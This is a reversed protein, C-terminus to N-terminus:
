AREATEKREKRIPRMLGLGMFRGAGIMLPGRVPTDFEIAAHVLQRRIAAGSKSKQHFAPYISAPQTGAMLQGLTVEVSTPRPLCVHACASVVSTEAKEWARAVSKYSAHGRLRDPHKPLAIPTASVWRRSPRHWISPRLSIVGSAAQRRVLHLVGHRGLKLKLQGNEQHEWNGIARLLIRKDNDDVIEPISIAVGLLRGDSRQFGTYPIPLFALHPTLSPRSDPRHGSITEPIPDSCHSLIAARMATAVEITRTSKLYRSSPLFEFVLWSGYTNPKITTHEMNRIETMTASRSTVFPLSRPRFGQHYAFQRELEALQGKGITRVPGVEQSREVHSLLPGSLGQIVRCSVFSSSHGLRIVRSLLRDITEKVDELATTEWLFVVQPHEPTVSPFYRGQKGRKEPFLGAATEPNTTGANSVQPEVERAKELKLQLREISKTVEGGSGQLEQHVQSHLNSIKSYKNNQWKASVITTDNVPVFHTAVSRPIAQSAFISPSPQAELWELAARESPCPNDSDAWASVLTSYLRAPHPPWEPARRDNHSTAVFRGTLFNVEIGFNKSSWPSPM